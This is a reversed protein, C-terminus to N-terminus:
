AQVGLQEAAFDFAPQSHTTTEAKAAMLARHMNNFAATAETLSQLTAQSTSVERAVVAERATNLLAESAQADAAGLCVYTRTFNKLNEFNLLAYRRDEFRRSARALDEAEILSSVLKILKAQVPTM